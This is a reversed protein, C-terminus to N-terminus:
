GAGVSFDPPLQARGPVLIGSRRKSQNQGMLNNSAELQYIISFFQLIAGLMWTTVGARMQKFHASGDADFAIVIFPGFDGETKIAWEKKDDDKFQAILSPGEMLIGDVVKDKGNGESM